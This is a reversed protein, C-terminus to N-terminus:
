IKLCFLICSEKFASERFMFIDHLSISLPRLDLTKKLTTCCTHTLQMFHHSHLM